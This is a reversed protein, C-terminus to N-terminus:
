MINSLLEVDASDLTIKLPEPNESLAVVTPYLFNLEQLALMGDGLLNHANISDSESGTDFATLLYHLVLWLPPQQGEDLPQHRLFGDVAVQYLFLNFKPGSGGAATEPRGVDVTTAATRAILQGRLLESVAGIATKSDSLAM